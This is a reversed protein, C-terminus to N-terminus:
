SNLNGPNMFRSPKQLISHGCNSLRKRRQQPWLELLFIFSAQQLLIVDHEIRKEGDRSHQETVETSHQQDSTFALDIPLKQLTIM